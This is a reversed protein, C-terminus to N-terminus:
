GDNKGRMFRQIRHIAVRRIEKSLPKANEGNAICDGFAEALAESYSRGSYGSIEEIHHKERQKNGSKKEINRIATRVVNQAEQHRKTMATGKAYHPIDPNLETLVYEIHHGAEHAAVSEASSNSHWWGKESNNQCSEKIHGGTGYFDPNLIINGHEFMGPVYTDDPIEYKFAHRMNVNYLKTSRHMQIPECESIVTTIGTMAAKGAELDIGDMGKAFDIGYKQQVYEKLEAVSKCKSIDHDTNLKPPMYGDPVDEFDTSEDLERQIQAEREAELKEQKKQEEEWRDERQKREEEDQKIAADVKRDFDPDNQDIGYFFEYLWRDEDSYKSEKASSSAPGANTSRTDTASSRELKPKEDATMGGPAFGFRGGKQRPYPNSKRIEYFLKAM